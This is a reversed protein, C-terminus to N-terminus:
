IKVAIQGCGPTEGQGEKDRRSRHIRSLLATKDGQTGGRRGRDKLLASEFDPSPLRTHTRTGRGACGCFTSSPDDECLRGRMMPFGGWLLASPFRIGGCRVTDRWVGRFHTIKCRM